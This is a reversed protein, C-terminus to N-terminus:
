FAIFMKKTTTVQGITPPCLVVIRRRGRISGWSSGLSQKEEHYKARSQPEGLLWDLFYQFNSGKHYLPQPKFSFMVQM